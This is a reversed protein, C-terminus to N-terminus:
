KKLTLWSSGCIRKRGCIACRNRSIYIDLEYNDGFDGLSIPIESCTWDRREINCYKCGSREDPGVASGCDFWVDNGLLYDTQVDLVQAIKVIVPGKPIRDGSVYRSVSVETKDIKKALERQTMGRKDLMEKLRDTFVSM